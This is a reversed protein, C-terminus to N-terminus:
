IDPINNNLFIRRSSFWSKSISIDKSISAFSTNWRDKDKEISKDVAVALQSTEFETLFDEMEKFIYPSLDSWLAKYTNKFTENKNGLLESFYMYPGHQGAWTDVMWHNSDFDWLNAMMLKSSETNDFKTLYMNSGGGDWTGLIDHALLWKAWSDVDIYQEYPGGEKIVNELTDIYGKIYAIQEQTVEDEDPYKFTYNMPYAWDSVFYVDENWWYADYELIYGTNSVDIRCDSNRKVSEILMYLGRYDGNVIVNVFEFSPTWQMGILENIKLGVLTNLGNYKILLWDKDKYKKDDGRSLLDAKKQLKLKYPRKDGYASTNGRIKITMGSNGDEFAGSNYLTCSDKMIVVRGPVKTANKISAGWCSDPPSVYDCTPEEQNVTEIQVLSLGLDLLMRTKSDCLFRINFASSLFIQTGNNKKLVLQVNDDYNNKQNLDEIYARFHGSDLTTNGNTIQEVRSIKYNESEKNQDVSRLEIVNDVTDSNLSTLNDTPTIHFDIYAIGGPTLTLSDKEITIVYVVDQINDSDSESCGVIFVSTLIAAVFFRLKKM